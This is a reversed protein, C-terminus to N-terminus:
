CEGREQLSLPSITEIFGPTLPPSLSAVLTELVAAPLFNEVVLFENQSNFEAKLKERDITTLAKHPKPQLQM